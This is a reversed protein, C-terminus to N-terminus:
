SQLSNTHSAYYAVLADVYERVLPRMTRAHYICYDFQADALPIARIGEDAGRSPGILVVIRRGTIVGLASMSTRVDLPAYEVRSDAIIGAGPLPMVKQMLGKSPLLLDFPALDEWKIEEKSALPHSEPVLCHLPLYGLRSSVLGASRKDTAGLYVDFDDSQALAEHLTIRVGPHDKQFAAVFGVYLVDGIQTTNYAVRIEDRPGQVLQRVAASGRDLEALARRVPDCYARGAETLRLGQASRAFLAAGLEGELLDIRHKLAPASVYLRDQAGRFSGVEALVLFTELQERDVPGRENSLAAASPHLTDGPTNILILCKSFICSIGM